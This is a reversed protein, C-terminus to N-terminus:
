SIRGGFRNNFIDRLCAAEKATPGRRKLREVMGAVFGHEFKENLRDPNAAMFQAIELWSHGNM